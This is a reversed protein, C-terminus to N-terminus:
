MEKSACEQPGIIVSPSEQGHPLTTKTYEAYLDKVNAVLLIELYMITLFIPIGVPAQSSGSKPLLSDTIFLSFHVVVLVVLLTIAIILEMLM